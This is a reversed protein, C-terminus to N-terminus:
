VYGVKLTPSKARQGISPRDASTLKHLRLTM